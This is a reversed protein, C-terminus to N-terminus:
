GEKSITWFRFIYTPDLTDEVGEMAGTAVAVNQGNWSPILPVDEATIDQLQGILEERAAEDTEGLEQDLLTNVEENSYGNAFFGGDRIFPTLYNDADLFDPYWGLIFLDYAGEKYLTQYEEWEADDTTVEFLGSSNLQDALETAEDVANPGYHTPTYGLTLRVPTQVGADDLLAKAADVSPEGYKEQFSDKQGGFGPPVISYAPAVTGDYANQAIADRDIIQAVAQRVALEKPVPNNLQWVWYRFESGEGKIVEVDPNGELDSLDTPSLTRWAIDVQQTDIATKLAGEDAFYQVFVQEASPARPGDYEENLELVAQEGAKYQSLKYPGSGIVADDAMLADAPFTDEDVISATATSLVKLFTLDPQNLHFIVTTDDPTEIAGDALTPNTEAGNSISGLLVSSGNPDAIEINRQFSYAVDSSTLENGNSFTLGERLTCTVTSPDDYACSEAADGVPEDAGAPISVLQEFINFQMNWSGFDYSGAPDMATITETTGLTWPAGSGGGEGSGGNGGDGGDDDSGCAAMTTALTLAAM